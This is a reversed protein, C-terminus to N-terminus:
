FPPDEEHPTPDHAQTRRDPGHPERDQADEAVEPSPTFRVGSSAGPLHSTTPLERVLQGAPTRWQFTGDAAQELRYGPSHKLTHHRRCLHGLNSSATAGGDEWAVTHDADCRQAPMSCGPYRCLPDRARLFRRISETPVRNDVGLVNGSVPHTLIRVLETAEGAILRATDVDIPGTTDHATARANAEVASLAIAVHPHLQARSLGAPTSSAPTSSTPTSSAPLTSTPLTSTPRKAGMEMGEGLALALAPITLSVHAAVARNARAVEAPDACLLMEVAFDALINAFSPADSSDDLSRSTSAGQNTGRNADDPDPSQSKREAPSRGGFEQAIWDAIGPAAM